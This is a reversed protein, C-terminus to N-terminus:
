QPRRRGRNFSLGGDVFEYRPESDGKYKAADNKSTCYEDDLNKQVCAGVRGSSAALAFSYSQDSPRHLCYPPVRAGGGEMPLGDFATESPAEALGPVM